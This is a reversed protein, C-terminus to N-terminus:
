GHERVMLKSETKYITEIDLKFTYDKLHNVTNFINLIEDKFQFNETM